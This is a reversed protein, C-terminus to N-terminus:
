PAAPRSIRVLHRIELTQFAIFGAMATFVFSFAEPQTPKLVRMGTLMIGGMAMLRTLMSILATRVPNGGPFSLIIVAALTNLAMLALGALAQPFHYDPLFRSLAYVAFGLFVFGAALSKIFATM